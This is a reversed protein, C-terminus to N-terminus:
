LHHLYYLYVLVDYFSPSRIIYRRPPAERFYSVVSFYSFPHLALLFFSCEMSFFLFFIGCIYETRDYVKKKREKNLKRKTVIASLKTHTSQHRWGRSLTQYLGFLGLTYWHMSVSRAFFLIFILFPM